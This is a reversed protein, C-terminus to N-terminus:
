IIKEISCDGSKIDIIFKYDNIIIDKNGNFYHMQKYKDWYIHRNDFYIEGNLSYLIGSIDSIYLDKDTKIVYGNIDVCNSDVLCNNSDLFSKSDKDISYIKLDKDYFLIDMNNKYSNGKIDYYTHSNSSLFVNLLVASILVFKIALLYKKSKYLYLSYPLFVKRKKSEKYNDLMRKSKIIAFCIAEEIIFLVIIFFITYFMTSILNENM